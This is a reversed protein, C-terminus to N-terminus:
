EAANVFLQQKLEEILRRGHKSTQVQPLGARLHFLAKESCAGPTRVLQSVVHRGFQHRALDVITEQRQLIENALIECAKEDCHALAKEVVFSAHRHRAHRPAGCCLAIAVYSRHEPLGHELICRVVHYGYAHRSLEKADSLLENILGATGADTGSHEFIRCLIRCGYRHRAMEGAVGQLEEVIFSAMSIPLVQVIKQVVYNGHKSEILTRIHGRLESALEAAEKQNTVDLAHQVLHCGQSDLALDLMSGRLSSTALKQQEMDNISLKFKNVADVASASQCQAFVTPSSPETELVDKNGAAGYEQCDYWDEADANEVPANEVDKPEAKERKSHRRGRGSRANGSSGNMAAGSGLAVGAIGKAFCTFSSMSASFAPLVGIVQVPQQFTAQGMTDFSVVSAGSAVVLPTAPQPIWYM